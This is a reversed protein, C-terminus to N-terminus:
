DMYIIVSSQKLKEFYSDFVEDRKKQMLKDSIDDKVEELPVLRNEVIKVPSLM